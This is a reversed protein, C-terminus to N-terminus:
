VYKSIRYVVLIPTGLKLSDTAVPVDTIRSHFDSLATSMRCMIAAFRGRSVGAEVEPRYVSKLSDWNVNLNFFAQINQILMM